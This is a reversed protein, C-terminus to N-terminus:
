LLKEMATVRIGAIEEEPRVIRFGLKKYFDVAYPAANVTMYSEKRQHKLYKGMQRILERGIGQRHYDEEVFLLSIFNGSRVSIEGIVRDGDMAVLMRYKGQLYWEYLEGDNLFADFNQIGRESYDAAEFKMFTRWIMKITEDWQEPQIWQIKYPFKLTGTV